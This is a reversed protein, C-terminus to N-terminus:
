SAISNGFQTIGEFVIIGIDMQRVQIQGNLYIVKPLSTDDVPCSVKVLAAKLGSTLQTENMRVPLRRQSM